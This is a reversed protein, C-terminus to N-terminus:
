DHAFFTELFSVRRAHRAKTAARRIFLTQVNAAERAAIIDDRGKLRLSILFCKGPHQATPDDARQEITVAVPGCGIVQHFFGASIMRGACDRRVVRDLQQPRSRRVPWNFQARAYNFGGIIPGNNLALQNGVVFDRGSTASSKDRDLGAM